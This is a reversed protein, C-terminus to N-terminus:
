QWVTRMAIGSGRTGCPQDITDKAYTSRTSSSVACRRPSTARNAFRIAGKSQLQVSPAHWQGLDVVRQDQGARAAQGPRGIRRRQAHNARKGVERRDNVFHGLKTDIVGVEAM